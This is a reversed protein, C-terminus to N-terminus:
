KIWINFFLPLFYKYCCPVWFCGFALPFRPYSMQKGIVFLCFTVMSFLFHDNFSCVTTQLVLPQEEFLSSHFVVAIIKLFILYKWFVIHSISCSGKLFSTILAVIALFMASSRRGKCSVSEQGITIITCLLHAIM